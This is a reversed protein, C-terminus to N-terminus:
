QGEGHAGGEPEFAPCDKAAEIESDIDEDFMLCHTAWEAYHRCRFCTRRTPFHLIEATM